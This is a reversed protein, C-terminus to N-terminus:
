KPRLTLVRFGDQPGDIRENLAQAVNPRQPRPVQRIPEKQQWAIEPETEEFIPQRFRPAIAEVIVWRIRTIPKSNDGSEM